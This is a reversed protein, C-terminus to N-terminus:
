GIKIFEKKDENLNDVNIWKKELYNVLNIVQSAKLCNKYDKCKLPKKIVWKKPDKAKKDENGDDVLYSYIKPRLGVFKTIKGGLEDKMLGIVKKNKGM